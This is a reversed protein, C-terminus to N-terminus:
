FETDSELYIVQDLKYLADVVTTHLGEHEMDRLIEQFDRLSDVRGKKYYLLACMGVCVLISLTIVIFLGLMM